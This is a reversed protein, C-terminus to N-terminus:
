EALWKETASIINIMGEKSLWMFSRRPLKDGGEDHAKAYPFGTKTKANNFFVIGGPEARFKNPTFKMKLQGSAQLIKGPKRPPKIGWESIQYPGLPVIRGNIKRFAIHGAVAGAYSLSWPTWSGDPGHEKQFHDDIDAYVYSSIIGGFARSSEALKLKKKLSALFFKWKYDDLNFEAQFAM